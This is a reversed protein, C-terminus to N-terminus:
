FKKQKTRYYTVQPTLMIYETKLNEVLAVKGISGKHSLLIDGEYDM